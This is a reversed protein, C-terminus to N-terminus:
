TDAFEPFRRFATNLFLLLTRGQGTTLQNWVPFKFDLPISHPAAHPWPYEPNPGDNANSPALKHIEHVLPMVGRIWHRLDNFRKFGFHVGIRDREERRVQGLGQMFQAFGAHNAPPASGLKWLYAKGLKETAMQLYHLCHCIPDGHSQLHHFVAFDSAAQKWWLEQQLNM